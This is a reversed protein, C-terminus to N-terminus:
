EATACFRSFILELLPPGFLIRPPLPWDNNILISPRYFCVPTVYPITDCSQVRAVDRRPTLYSSVCPKTSYWAWYPTHFDVRALAFALGPSCLSADWLLTPLPLFVPQPLLPPLPFFLTSQFFALACLTGGRLPGKPPFFVAAFRIGRTLFFPAPFFIDEPANEFSPFFSL